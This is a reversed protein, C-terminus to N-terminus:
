RQDRCNLGVLRRIRLRDPPVARETPLDGVVVRGATCLGPRRAAGPPAATQERDKKDFRRVAYCYVLRGPQGHAAAGFCHVVRRSRGTAGPLEREAIVEHTDTAGDLGTAARVAVVLTPPLADERGHTAFGRAEVTATDFTRAKKAAGEARKADSSAKRKM